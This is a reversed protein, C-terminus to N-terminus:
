FVEEISRYPYCELKSRPSCNFVEIGRKLVAESQASLHRVQKDYRNRWAANDPTEDYSRRRGDPGPTLDIGLLVIRQVGRLVAVSINTSTSNHGEVLLGADAFMDPHPRKEIYARRFFKMRADRRGVMADPQTIIIDEGKFGSLNPHAALWHRDSCMLVTARTFREYGGNAVLSKAPLALVAEPDLALTSTGNGIVLATLGEWDRNFM